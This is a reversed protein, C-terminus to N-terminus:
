RNNVINWYTYTIREAAKPTDFQTPFSLIENNSVDGEFFDSARKAYALQMLYDFIDDACSYNAEYYERFCPYHEHGKFKLPSEGYKKSKDDYHVM